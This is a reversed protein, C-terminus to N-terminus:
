KKGKKLTGNKANMLSGKSNNSLSPLSKINSMSSIDTLNSSINGKKTEKELTKGYYDTIIFNQFNLYKQINDEFIKLNEECKEKTLFQKNIEEVKEKYDNYEDELGNIIYENDKLLNEKEINKERKLNEIIKDNDIKFKTKKTELDKKFDKALEDLEENKESINRDSNMTNSKGKRKYINTISDPNNISKNRKVNNQKPIDNKKIQQYRSILEKNSSIQENIKKIFIILNKLRIRNIEEIEKKSDNNNTNSSDEILNDKKEIIKKRKFSM